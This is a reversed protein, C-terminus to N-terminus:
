LDVKRPQDQIRRIRLGSRRLPSAGFFDALNGVRKPEDFAAVVAIKRGNRTIIQPRGSQAEEILEDFNVKAEAITWTRSRM